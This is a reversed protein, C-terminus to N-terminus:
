RPESLRLYVEERRCTFAQRFKTKIPNASHSTKRGLLCECSHKVHESTLHSTSTECSIAVNRALCEKLDASSTQWTQEHCAVSARYCHVPSPEPCPLAVLASSLYLSTCVIVQGEFALMIWHCSGVFFKRKCSYFLYFQVLLQLPLEVQNYSRRAVHVSRYNRHLFDIIIRQQWQRSYPLPLYYDEKAYFNNDQPSAKVCVAGAKSSKRRSCSPCVWSLKTNVSPIKVSGGGGGGGSSKWTKLPDAWDWLRSLRLLSLSCTFDDRQPKWFFGRKNKWAVM